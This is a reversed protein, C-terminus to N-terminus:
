SEPSEQKQEDSKGGGEDAKPEPAKSVVVLAPRVLRDNLTFGRVVESVVQNPPVDASEVQQMAEHLRPDFAKGVSSFSKIGHKGLTDEFLKRTMSVGQKFSEFDSASKAYEVARDLNDIVPLLDKLIKEVGFKQVEEKEKQARKKYNDLDAVSRLMKEHSEKVRDMMERGKALSMELQAKLTEIERAAAGGDVEVAVESTEAESDGSETPETPAPAGEGSGEAKRRNVAKLAEEIVDQSIDASFKGKDDSSV